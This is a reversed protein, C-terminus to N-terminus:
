SAGKEQALRVAKEISDNWPEGHGPLLMSGEAVLLNDLSALARKSDATAAGAIIQPGLEGTYINLTVLADGTLLAKKDAFYFASHGYTHGSVPIVRPRGPVDLQSAADYTQMETVGPVSLAGAQVMRALIPLARPYKLPYLLRSREHDYRYPHRAIYSESKHIWVPVDLEAQARAAFGLHDFHAHTILIAAIDSRKCGLEDLAGLLLGWSKPFGTDVITLRGAEEVVYFNTYAQEIRHVGPVINRQLM